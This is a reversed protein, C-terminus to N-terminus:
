EAIATIVTLSHAPFLYRIGSAFGDIAAERVWVADPSHFSNTATLEAANLEEVRAHASTFGGSLRIEATVPDEPSRNVVSLMLERGGAALTAVADLAPFPGLDAVRYPWPDRDVADVHEYRDSDIHVDLSATGLHDAFLRLPHYISQLFLGQESTVIPAIVNVLQALNAMKVVNAHRVFAHLYTSVALADALDYREELGAQGDMERFWVNWEDYAIHIPHSVKQQYRAKEILASAIRMAREAQHPM